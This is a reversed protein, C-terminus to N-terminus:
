NSQKKARHADLWTLIDKEEQEVQAATLHAKVAEVRSKNETDGSSEAVRLWFYSKGAQGLQGFLIGVNRASRTSGAEAAKTYYNIAKTDDKGGGIGTQYCYGINHMAKAYGQDAAKEFLHCARVKDMSQGGSGDNYLSALDFQAPPSGNNAAMQLFQIAKDHSKELGRGQEYMSAVFYQALAQSSQLTSDVHEQQAALLLYKSAMEPAKTLKTGSFYAMGLLMQADLSGKGAAVDLWARGKEVDATDRQGDWYARGLQVMSAIDGQTAKAETAALDVSATRREQSIGVVCVTSCLIVAGALQVIRIL